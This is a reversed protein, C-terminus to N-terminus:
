LVIRYLVEFNLVTCYTHKLFAYTNVFQVVGTDGESSLYDLYYYIGRKNTDLVTADFTFAHFLLIISNSM